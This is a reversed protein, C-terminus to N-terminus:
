WFRSEPSQTKRSLPKASTTAPSLSAVPSGNRFGERPRPFHRFRFWNRKKRPPFARRYQTQEINAPDFVQNLSPRFLLSAGPNPRLTTPGRQSRRPSPPETSRVGEDGEGM